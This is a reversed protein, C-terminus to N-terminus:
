ESPWGQRARAAGASDMRSARRVLGLAIADVDSRVDRCRVGRRAGARVPAGKRFHDM